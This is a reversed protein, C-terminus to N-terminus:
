YGADLIKGIAEILFALHLNLSTRCGCLAIIWRRIAELATSCPRAANTARSSKSNNAILEPNTWVFRRVLSQEAAVLHYCRSQREQANTQFGIRAKGQRPHSGSLANEHAPVSRFRRRRNLHLIAALMVGDHLADPRVAPLPRHM